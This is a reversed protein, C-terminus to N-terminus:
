NSQEHLAMLLKPFGNRDLCHLQAAKAAAFRVVRAAFFSSGKSGSRSACILADLGEDM